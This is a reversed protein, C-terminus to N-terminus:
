IYRDHRSLHRILILSGIFMAAVFILFLATFDGSDSAAFFDYCGHLFVPVAVAGIRCLKSALPDNWHQYRKAAGYFVGMFVGFCAHGPVATLARVLATELGYMFVYGINELLAFGLSVSVAYVIGDFQCNFEPDKWTKGKLLLYKFGEESLGVVFFYMLLETILSSRTFIFALLASGIEETIMAAFTALAGRIVLRIILGPSERELRDAKYVRILLFLAPLVAAAILMTEARYFM